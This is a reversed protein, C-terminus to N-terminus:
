VGHRLWTSAREAIMLTPANTNGTPVEPMIAADAVFLGDMGRVRLQPDVVSGADAGMRCTGVPHYVTEAKSRIFERLEGDAGLLKGPFINDGRWPDFASQALIDRSVRAAECMRQLDAGDPDSLYNPQILPPAAPDASRLRIHGRSQPHLVCAHLTYGYGPLRGRGHDDLLAPM